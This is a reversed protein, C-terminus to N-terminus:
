RGNNIVEEKIINTIHKRIARELNSGYKDFLEQNVFKYESLFLPIVELLVDNLDTLKINHKYKINVILKVYESDVINNVEAYITDWDVKQKVQEVQVDLAVRIDNIVTEVSVPFMNHADLCVCYMKYNYIDSNPYKYFKNKTHLHGFLDIVDKTLRREDLRCCFTPYHCLYFRYKGYKVITSYGLVEVNPLKKYEEVKNNTDHNGILIKIFGNLRSLISLGENIDNLMIDGLVYVTDDKAVVSNWNNLIAANMSDIDKFGRPTYLFEKNHCLHLDSTFWIM